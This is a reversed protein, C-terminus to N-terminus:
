RSLEFNSDISFGREHNIATNTNLRAAGGQNTQRTPVGLRLNKSLQRSHVSQSGDPEVTAGPNHVSNDIDTGTHQMCDM